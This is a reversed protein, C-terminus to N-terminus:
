TKLHSIIVSRLSHFNFDKSRVTDFEETSAKKVGDDQLMNHVAGHTKDDKPMQRVQSGCMM